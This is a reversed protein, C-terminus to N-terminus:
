VNFKGGECTDAARSSSVAAKKPDGGNRAVRVQSRCSNCEIIGIRHGEAWIILNVLRLKCTM